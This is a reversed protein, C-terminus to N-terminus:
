VPLGIRLHKGCIPSQGIVNSIKESCIQEFSWNTFFSDSNPQPMVIIPFNAVACLIPGPETQEVRYWAASEGHVLRRTKGCASVLNM